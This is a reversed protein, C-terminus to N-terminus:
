ECCPAQLSCGLFFICRITENWKETLAGVCAGLFCDSIVPTM